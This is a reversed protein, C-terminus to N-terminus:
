YSLSRLICILHLPRCGTERNEGGRERNGGKDELFYPETPQIVIESESEVLMLCDIYFLKNLILSNTM